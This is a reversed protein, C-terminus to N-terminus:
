YQNRKTNIGGGERGILNWITNKWNRGVSEGSRYCNIPIWGHRLLHLGSTVEEVKTVVQIPVMKKNRCGLHPGKCFAKGVQWLIISGKAHTKIASCGDQNEIWRWWTCWVEFAVINAFGELRWTTPWASLVMGLGQRELQLQCNQLTLKWGVWQGKWGNSAKKDLWFHGGHGQGL